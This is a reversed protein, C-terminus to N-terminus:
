TNRRKRWKEEVAEALVVDGYRRSLLLATERAAEDMGSDVIVIDCSLGGRGLLERLSRVSGELSEARGGASLRLELRLGEGLRVPTYLCRRTAAILLAVAAAALASILLETFM